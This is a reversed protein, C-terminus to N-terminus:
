ITKERFNRIVNRVIRLTWGKRDAALILIIYKDFHESIYRCYKRGFDLQQIEKVLEVMECVNGAPGNRRRKM